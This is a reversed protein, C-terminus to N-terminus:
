AGLAGSQVIAWGIGALALGVLIPVIIWVVKRMADAWPEIKDVRREVNDVRYDLSTVLAEMQKTREAMTDFKQVFLERLGDLGSQVTQELLALRKDLDFSSLEPDPM